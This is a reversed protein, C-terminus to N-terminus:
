RAMTRKSKGKKRRTGEVGLDDLYIHKGDDEFVQVKM